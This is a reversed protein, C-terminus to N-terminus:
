RSAAALLAHLRPALVAADEAMVFAQIALGWIAALVLAADREIADTARAPARQRLVAAISARFIQVRQRLFAMVEPEAIAVQVVGVMARMRAPDALVAAVRSPMDGLAADPLDRAAALLQESTRQFYREVVARVLDLKRPFYYTLHGQPIGAARAVRPQSLGSAGEAGLLTLAHGIISDSLDLRQKPAM